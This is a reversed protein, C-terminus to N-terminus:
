IVLSFIVSTCMLSLDITRKLLWDVAVYSGNKSERCSARLFRVMSTAGPRSRVTLSNALVNVIVVSVETNGAAPVPPLACALPACKSLGKTSGNGSIGVLIRAGGSSSGLRSNVFGVAYRGGSGGGGGGGGGGGTLGTVITAPIPCGSSTSSLKMGPTPEPTPKSCGFPGVDFM